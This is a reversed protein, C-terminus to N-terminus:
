PKEGGIGHAERLMERLFEDDADYGYCLLLSDIQEESLPQVAQPSALDGFVLPRSKIHKSPNKTYALFWADLDQNHEYWAVPEQQVPQPQPASAIGWRVRACAKDHGGIDGCAICPQPAATAQEVARAFWHGWDDYTTVLQGGVGQPRNEFATKAKDICDEIEAESM